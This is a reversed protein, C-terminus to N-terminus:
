GGRKIIKIQSITLAIMTSCALNVISYQLFGISTFWSTVIEGHSFYIIIHLTINNAVFWLLTYLAIKM